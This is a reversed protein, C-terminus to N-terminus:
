RCRDDGSSSVARGCSEVLRKQGHDTDQMGRPQLATNGRPQTSARQKQWQGLTTIAATTVLTVVCLYPEIIRNQHARPSTASALRHLFKVQFDLVADFRSIKPYLSTQM